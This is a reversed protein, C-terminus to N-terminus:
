IQSQPFNQPFNQGLIKHFSLQLHSSEDATVSGEAGSAKQGVVCGGMPCVSLLNSLSPLSPCLESM